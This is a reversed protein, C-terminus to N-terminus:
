TQSPRSPSSRGRSRLVLAATLLTLGRAARRSDLLSELLVGM